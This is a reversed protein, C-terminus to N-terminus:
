RQANQDEKYPQSTSAAGQQNLFRSNVKSHQTNAGELVDILKRHLKVHLLDELLSFADTLLDLTTLYMTM